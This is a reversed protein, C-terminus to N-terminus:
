EVTLVVLPSVNSAVVQVPMELQTKGQGVLVMDYRGGAKLETGAPLTVRGHSVSGTVVSKDEGVFNISSVAGARKGAVAVSPHSGIETVKSTGRIVLGGTVATASAIHVREPCAQQAESVKGGAVQYDNGNVTVSGGTVTVERCTQYHIFTVSGTEGLAIQTGPAIESYPAVNTSAGAISTVMGADLPGAAHAAFPAASLALASLFAFSTKNM